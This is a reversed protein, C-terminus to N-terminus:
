PTLVNIEFVERERERKRDREWETKRKHSILSILLSTSYYVATIPQWTQMIERSVITHSVCIVPTAFCEMQHIRHSQIVHKWSQSLENQCWLYKLAKIDEFLSLFRDCTKFKPNDLCEHQHESIRQTYINSFYFFSSVFVKNSVHWCSSQYNGAIPSVLLKHFVFLVQKSFLMNSCNIATAAAMTLTGSPHVPHQSILLHWLYYICPFTVTTHLPISCLVCILFFPFSLPLFLLPSIAETREGNEEETGPDRRGASLFVNVSVCEGQLEERLLQQRLCKISNDFM